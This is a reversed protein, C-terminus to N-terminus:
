KDDLSSTHKQIQANFVPDGDLMKSVKLFEKAIGNKQSCFVEGLSLLISFRPRWIRFFCIKPCFTTQGHYALRSLSNGDAGPPTPPHSVFFLRSGGHVITMM